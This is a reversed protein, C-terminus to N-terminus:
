SDSLPAFQLKPYQLFRDIQLPTQAYAIPVTAHLTHYLPLTLYLQSNLFTRYTFSFTRKMLLPNKVLELFPIFRIEVHSMPNRSSSFDSPTVYVASGCHLKDM